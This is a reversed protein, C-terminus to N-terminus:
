PLRSLLILGFAAFIINAIWAALIPYLLGAMGLAIGVANAVYYLFSIGICLGLSTIATGRRKSMFGFPIGVLTIIFATFPYAIKQNLEVSLNQLVKPSNTESIKDTYELLEKISMNSVNIKKRLLDKPTEKLDMVYEEEFVPDKEIHGLIDFVYIITQFLKWKTGEIWKGSSAIIKATVNQNRDQELITIDEIIKLQKRFTRIFILRNDEGFVTVNHLAEDSKQDKPEKEINEDKIREAARSTNPIVKESLLFIFCSIILSIIIIPTIIQTISLGSSRMAIIENSHSLRGLSYLTALLIAIPSTQIFIVPLISLYYYVLTNIPVQNKIIDELNGFLDIVVYLLVFTAICGFIAYVFEKTLLRDLIRM